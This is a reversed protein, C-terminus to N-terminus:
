LANSSYTPLWLCTTFSSLGARPVIGVLLFAGYTASPEELEEAELLIADELTAEDLMADDLTTDDDCITEELLTCDDLLATDDLM